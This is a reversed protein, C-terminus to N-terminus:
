EDIELYSPLDVFNIQILFINYIWNNEMGKYQSKTVGM